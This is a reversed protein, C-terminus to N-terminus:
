TTPEAPPEETTNTPAVSVLEGGLDPGAAAPTESASESVESLTMAQFFVGESKFPYGYLTWGDALLSNVQTSLDDAFNDRIIQYQM